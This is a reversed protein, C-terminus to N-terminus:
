LWKQSGLDWKRKYRNPFDFGSSIENPQSSSTKKEAGLWEILLRSLCM